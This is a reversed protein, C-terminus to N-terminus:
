QTKIRPALEIWTSPHPIDPGCPINGPNSSATLSVPRWAKGKIDQVRPRGVRTAQKSNLHVDNPIDLSGVRGLELFSAVLSTGTLYSTELAKISSVLEVWTCPNPSLVPWISNKRAQPTSIGQLGSAM